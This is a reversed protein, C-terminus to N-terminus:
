VPCKNGMFVRYVAYYLIYFESFFGALSSIFVRVFINEKHNCNWSLYIAIFFLTFKILCALSVQIWHWSSKIDQQRNSININDPATKYVETKYLNSDIDKDYDITNKSSSM